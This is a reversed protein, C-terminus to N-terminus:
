KANFESVIKKLSEFLEDGKQTQITKELSSSIKKMLPIDAAYRSKGSNEARELLKSVGIIEDKEKEDWEERVLWNEFAFVFFKHLIYGSAPDGYQYEREM